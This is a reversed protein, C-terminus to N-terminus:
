KKVEGDVFIKDSTSGLRTCKYKRCTDPELETGDPLQAIAQGAPYSVYTDTPEGGDELYLHVDKVTYPNGYRDIRDRSAIVARYVYRRIGDQCLIGDKVYRISAEDITSKAGFVMAMDEGDASVKANNSMNNAANMMAAMRAAFTSRNYMATTTIQPMMNILASAKRKPVGTGM